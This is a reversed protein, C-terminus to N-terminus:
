PVGPSALRSFRRLAAEAGPGLPERYSAVRARLDSPLQDRMATARRSLMYTLSLREAVTMEAARAARERVREDSRLYGLQEELRRDVDSDSPLM